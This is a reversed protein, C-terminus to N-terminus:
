HSFVKCSDRIVIHTDLCYQEVRTVQQDNKKIIIDVAKQGIQYGPVHMTTLPPHAYAAFEVNDFGCLSVDHPIVLNKERAGAIAGLALIDSAAFVASPRKDLSMLRIMSQRGESLSPECEIIWDPNSEINYDKLCAQFGEFRNRVRGVKSYPGIILGIKRHNLSILYETMSYAAKYNDFGVFNVNPMSLKEWIVVCPIGDQIIQDLFHENGVTFGTLIIGALRREKFKRLLLYETDPDYKTNGVIVSFGREQVREQIALISDAFLPAKTTPILVGIVTSRRSSLEGATTNYVYGSEDICKLVKHLTKKSVLHPTHIARSVTAISVSAAKAIDLMTPIGMNCGRATSTCDPMYASVNLVIISGRKKDLYFIETRM